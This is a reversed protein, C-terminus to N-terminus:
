VSIPADLKKFLSGEGKSRWRASDPSSILELVALKRPTISQISSSFSKSSAMLISEEWVISVIDSLSFICLTKELFFQELSSSIVKKSLSYKDASCCFLRCTIHFSANSDSWLTNLLRERREGSLRAIHRSSNFRVFLKLKLSDM